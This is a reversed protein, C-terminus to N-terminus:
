DLDIAVVVIGGRRRGTRAGSCRRRPKREWWVVAHFPTFSLPISDAHLPSLPVCSFLFRGRRLPAPPPRRR